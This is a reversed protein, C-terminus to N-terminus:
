VVGVLQVVLFNIDSEKTTKVEACRRSDTAWIPVVNHNRFRNVMDADVFINYRRGIVWCVQEITGGWDKAYRSIYPICQQPTSCRSFIYKDIKTM